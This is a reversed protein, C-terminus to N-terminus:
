RRSRRRRWTGLLGALGLLTGPAPVAQMQAAGGIMADGSWETGVWGAAASFSFPTTSVMFGDWGAVSGNSVSVSDGFSFSAVANLYRNVDVLCYLLTGDTSELRPVSVTVGDGVRDSLIGFVNWLSYAGGAVNVGEVNLSSVLRGNVRKQSIYDKVDVPAGGASPQLAAPIQCYSAVILNGSRSAPVNRPWGHADIEHGSADTCSFDFSVTCAPTRPDPDLGWEGARGDKPRDPRALTASTLSGTVLAIVLPLLVFNRNSRDTRM